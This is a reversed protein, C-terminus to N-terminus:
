LNKGEYVELIKKFQQSPLEHYKGQIRARVLFGLDSNRGTRFVALTEALSLDVFKMFDEKVCNFYQVVIKKEKEIGGAQLNDMIQM